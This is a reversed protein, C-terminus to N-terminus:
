KDITYEADAAASGRKESAVGATNAKQTPLNGTVTNEVTFTKFYVPVDKVGTGPNTIRFRYVFELINANSEASYTPVTKDTSTSGQATTAGSLQKYTGDTLNYYVPEFTTNPNTTDKNEADKKFGAVPTPTASPGYASVESVNKGNYATAAAIYFSSTDVTSSSLASLSGASVETNSTYWAFTTSVLTTACAALAACSLFLKRGFKKM